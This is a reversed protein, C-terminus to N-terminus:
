AEVMNQHAVSFAAKIQAAEKSISTGYIAAITAAIALIETKEM